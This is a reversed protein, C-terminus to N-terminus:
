GTSELGEDGLAHARLAVEDHGVLADVGDERMHRQVQLAGIPTGVLVAVREARTLLAKRHPAVAREYPDDNRGPASRLDVLLGAPRVAAIWRLLPGYAMVIDSTEMRVSTRRVVFAGPGLPEIEFWKSPAPLPPDSASSM